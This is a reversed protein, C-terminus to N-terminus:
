VNYPDRVAGGSYSPARMIRDLNDMCRYVHPLRRQDIHEVAKRLEALEKQWLEDARNLDRRLKILEQRMADLDM